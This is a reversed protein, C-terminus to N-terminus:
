YDFGSFLLSVSTRSDQATSPLGEAADDPQIVLRYHISKGAALTRPLQGGVDSHAPPTTFGQGTRSSALTQNSALSCLSGDFILKGDDSEDTLRAHLAGTLVQGKGGDCGTASVRLFTSAMDLTGTNKLVLDRSIPAFHSGLNSGDVGVLLTSASEGNLSLGLDGSSISTDASVQTTFTAGAGAGILGLGAVAIGTGIMLKPRVAM